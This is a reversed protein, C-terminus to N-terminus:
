LINREYEGYKRKLQGLTCDDPVRDDIYDHIGHYSVVYNEKIKAVFNSGVHKYLRTYLTKKITTETQQM